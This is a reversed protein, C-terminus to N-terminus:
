YNASFNPISNKSTEALYYILIGSIKILSVTLINFLGTTGKCCDCLFLKGKCFKGFYYFWTFLLHHQQSQIILLFQVIM